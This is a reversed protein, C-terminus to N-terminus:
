KKKRVVPETSRTTPQEAPKVRLQVGNSDSVAPPAVQQELQSELDAFGATKAVAGALSGVARADSARGEIRLAEALEAGTFVYLLPMSASPRDIWQGEAVTSKHGYFVDNWLVLSRRVDLWGDGNVQLTDRTASAPPVFLKSALGQTLVYNGLGLARPYPGASRAFYIPRDPWADQIMRLVLADARQLVGQDLNRPDIVAHFPGSNFAVTGTLPYYAPVADADAFTMHLPPAIPKKWHTGRYIAPGRAVDYVYIPRRIIQRVYWDTNLLSTNAVVVDRRIGEVEQAYWLPFTDNDGVTVLVGYPEVSNLLDAAINRTTRHRARSASSANAMSPILALLLLPSSVLWARRTPMVAAESGIRQRETAILSAITQWVEFLGVAAWVGWASFSWLFFYDRDRVEHPAQSTPDQSAGLKFNLYYILLLTMTFMLSGFYWFTRRDRSYHTWGGLLGLVLFTAACLAQLFPARGDPDRVWQWKFYMWWMGVQESFSAQRDSLDPKGYQTRNFNYAFADVTGSSLTCSLELRTRCATPEGENLAPFHAARIPQTAFPTLGIFVAALCALLLKWRLITSPRRVLVMVAVAPAPLMGAMHNAYGLGCLYAILVLMRDAADGGPHVSWRIALWSLLAIGALSVTYVKENVVSQNWVTFATAGIVTALAGAAIRVWRAAIWAQLVQETVLFWVGAAIASCVAALVNIRAAVSGAIPLLSFVRGVIVFFPNGPPHPLGFTYAATIYESTDWMATSPAMTVLYLMLVAAGAIAAAAYPPRNRVDQTPVGGVWIDLPILICYGIALMLASVTIGGRVLDAYGVVFTALTLAYLYIKIEKPRAVPRAPM